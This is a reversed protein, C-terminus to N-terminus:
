MPCDFTWPIGSSFFHNFFHSLQNLTILSHGNHLLFLFNADRVFGNMRNQRVIQLHPTDTHYYVSGCMAQQSAIGWLSFCEQWWGVVMHEMDWESHIQSNGVRFILRLPVRKTVMSSMLDFTIASSWFIGFSAKQRHKWCHCSQHLM